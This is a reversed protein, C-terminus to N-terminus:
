KKSIDARCKDEDKVFFLGTLWWFVVALGAYVPILNAGALIADVQVQFYAEDSM